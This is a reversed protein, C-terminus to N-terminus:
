ILSYLSYTAILQMSLTSTTPILGVKTQNKYGEAMQLASFINLCSLKNLQFIYIKQVSRINEKRM